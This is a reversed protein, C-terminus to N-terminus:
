TGTQLGSLHCTWVFSCIAVTAFWASVFCGMCPSGFSGPWSSWILPGSTDLHVMVELVEELRGPHTVKMAAENMRQTVHPFSVVDCLWHLLAPLLMVCGMHRVVLSGPLHSTMGSALARAALRPWTCVMDEFNVMAMQINPGNIDRAIVHAVCPAPCVLM